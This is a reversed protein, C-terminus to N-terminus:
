QTVFTDAWVARDIPNRGSYNRLRNNYVHIYPQEVTWLFYAFENVWRSDIEQLAKKRSENDTAQREKLILDTLAPDDM